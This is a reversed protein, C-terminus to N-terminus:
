HTLHQGGQDREVLGSMAPGVATRLRYLVALTTPVLPLVIVWIIATWTMALPANAALNRTFRGFLFPLDLVAPVAITLFIALAEAALCVWFAGSVLRYSKAFADRLGAGEQAAAALALSFMVGLWVAPVVLLVFGAVEIVYFVLAVGLVLWVRPLLAAVYRYPRLPDRGDIVDSAVRILVAWAFVIAFASVIGAANAAWAPLALTDVVLLFVLLPAILAAATRYLPVFGQRLVAFVEEVIGAFTISGAM